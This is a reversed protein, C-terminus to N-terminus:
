GGYARRAAAELKQATGAADDPNALFDQLLRFMADSGFAAPQLDSLDFRFTEAAGLPASAARSIEDPYADEGVNRNPSTFGGRGAWIEGAEPTALYEVLARAAENDNFMVIVDGAGLITGEGSDGIAPFAFVNYGTEPEANTEGTIVGQVFDGEFVMAAKPPDTYVNQVSTPFDTQLAGQTGGAINETDGLIEGMTTLAETVSEHTWPIEHAALQDYLDPGATRLYINEFLDTLTWGESGGISYAPVGSAQLTAAVEQLGEWDEPPEVGADEFAQVNYWVTSKNVGKFFVGYLTGDVTGLDIWDQTYNDEVAQQAFDLPQIAGRQAFQRMLGPNPLAAVDPPNGGEIATSLVTTIDQASRYNIDVDPNAEQFADLVAQFSEGETGTWVAMITVAGSAGGEAGAETGGEAATQGGGDGGGGGDDGGCGALLALCLALLALLIFRGYRM